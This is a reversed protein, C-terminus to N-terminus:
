NKKPGETESHQTIIFELNLHSNNKQCFKQIPYPIQSTFRTGTVALVILRLLEKKASNSPLLTWKLIKDAQRNIILQGSQNKKANEYYLNLLYM